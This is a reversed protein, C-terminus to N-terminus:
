EDILEDLKEDTIGDPDASGPDETEEFADSSGIHVTGKKIGSPQKGSEEKENNGADKKDDTDDTQSIM